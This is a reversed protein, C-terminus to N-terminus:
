GARHVDVAVLVLLDVGCRPHDGLVVEAGGVEVTSRSGIVRRRDVRQQGLEVGIGCGDATGLGSMAVRRSRPWRAATAGGRPPELQTSPEPQTSARARAEASITRSRTSSKRAMRESIYM